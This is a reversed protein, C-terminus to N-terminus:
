HRSQELLEKLREMMKRQGDAGRERGSESSPIMNLAFNTRSGDKHVMTTSGAYAYGRMSGLADRIARYACRGELVGYVLYPFESQDIEVKLPRYGLKQCLAAFAQRLGAATYRPDINEKGTAAKSWDVTVGASGKEAAFAAPALTLGLVVFGAALQSKM